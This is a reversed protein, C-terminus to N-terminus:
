SQMKSNLRLNIEGLKLALRERVQEMEEAAQKIIEAKEMGLVVLSLDQKTVQGTSILKSTAELQSQAFLRMSSISSRLITLSPETEELPSSESSLTVQGMVDEGAYGALSFLISPDSAYTNALRGLVVASPVSPRGTKRNVANEIALLYVASIGSAGAAAKASM